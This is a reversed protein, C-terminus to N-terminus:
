PTQVPEVTFGKWAEATRGALDVTATRLRYLGPTEVKFGIEVTTTGAERHIRAAESEWRLFRYDENEPGYLEWAAIVNRYM